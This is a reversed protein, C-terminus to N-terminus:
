DVALHAITVGTDGERPGALAYRRVYPSRRLFDHVARRLTGTGKGHVIRVFPLGALYAQELYRELEDLADDVTMGRLHVEPGPSPPRPPTPSLDLGQARARAERRGVPRLEDTPVRVRAPGVQVEAEDDHLALVTGVQGGLRAVAVRAGVQLRPTAEAATAAASAEGPLPEPRDAEAAQRLTAEAQRAWADAAARLPAVEDTPQGRLQLRRELARLQRRLADLEAQLEARAAALQEGRAAEWAELRRQLEARLAEAERQRQEWAARARAAAQQQRQIDALLDDARLEDPHVQARARAVIAPDLGLREAIVLANSRGPLGVLLRYTPQLTQPDFEMSANRVGPTRHAYLKLAPYHTAVLTTVGRQVLADLIAQALAAGEQPDTGAGLEDLLVLSRPNARKLIRIINRLHASFTSLSQEISQEDGIDAFVQEFVTLQSGAGAPIPLGSQAMLALLGATKLTVTKGGTNPGTIVLVYTEDDLVLDLPVVRDTPLLPHRAQYLRLVSGPHGAPADPRFPVLEPEVADLTDAYRAKAFILDLQALGETLRALDDADHGVLRSLRALIRQVEREEAKELGRLRNNLDVVALPEVFLTAGTGSQDHVIGPVKHRHEAKVPLVYRGQRRTIIPEQLWPRVEASRVMGELARLLAQHTRRLQQRIDELEPTARDRVRADSTFVRELEHLLGPLDPLRRALRALRPAPPRRRGEARTLVRKLRAAARLTSRIAVLEDPTLTKGRAAAEAWGRLDHADDLSLGATHQGLLRRAERTQAQWRRATDLDATPQLHLALARGAEFTTFAALRERVKPFELTELDKADM